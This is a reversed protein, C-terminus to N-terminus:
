HFASLRKLVVKLTEPKVQKALKEVNQHKFLESLFACVYTLPANEFLKPNSLYDRGQERMWDRADFKAIFGQQHITNHLQKLVDQYDAPDDFKTQYAAVCLLAQSDPLLEVKHINNM